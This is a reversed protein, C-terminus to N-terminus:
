FDVPPYVSVYSLISVAYAYKRKNLILSVPETVVFIFDPTFLLTVHSVILTIPAM